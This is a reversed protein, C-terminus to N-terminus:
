LLCRITLSEGLTVLICSIASATSDAPASETERIFVSSPMATSVLVLFGTKLVTVPPRLPGQTFGTARRITHCTALATFIGTTPSPPIIHVLSAIYNRLLINLKEFKENITKTRKYDEPELTSEGFKHGIISRNWREEFVSLQMNCDRLIDSYADYIDKSIFAINSNLTDQAKVVDTLARSYNNKEFKKRETEDAPVKNYGHPIMISVSKTANFFVLSLERYLTFEADFKTKSIYTKNEVGAKYNELEKNLKLEYKKSLREAIINSTFKVIIIIVGSIGGVSALVSLVIKWISDWEM